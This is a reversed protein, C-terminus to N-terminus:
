DEKTFVKTEKKCSMCVAIHKKLKFDNSKCRTCQLLDLLNIKNNKKNQSFLIRIVRLVRSNLYARVRRREQSNKPIKPARNWRKKLSFNPNLIKYKIGGTDRSWYLRVHFNFPYKSFLEPMVLRAKNHFLRELEKDQIRAIKKRIILESNKETIELTHEPYGTLREMFADPVEIYGAKGVRQIESIFLAPDDSHELVHSAIIFDFSNDKFPLNEAYGLILPRDVVLSRNQRHHNSEFADCLVNSRFYPSAGSGIELVLDEKKVPCHLRRLAWSITDFNYRRFCKMLISEHPLSSKSKTM